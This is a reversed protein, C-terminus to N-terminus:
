FLRCRWYLPPRVKSRKPLGFCAATALSELWREAEPWPLPWITRDTRAANVGAVRALDASEVRAGLSIGSMRNHETIM